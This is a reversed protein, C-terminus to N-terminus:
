SSVSFVLEDGDAGARIVDGAKINGKLIEMSLPNEVYRQIARKLPRAGYVPDYGKEALFIRAGNQLALEIDQDALRAALHRIQIDVIAGIQNPLLNHFIIIEDIRNLFEPKFQARLLENIRKEMEGRRTDDLETTGMEQIMHSGVNSTMIIITNKFDVTRGHGDTM